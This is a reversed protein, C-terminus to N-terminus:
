GTKVLAAVVREAVAEVDATSAGIVVAGGAAVPVLVAPRGDVQLRERARPSEEPVLFVTVPGAATRVVFHPRERGRFECNQAYVVEGLGARLGLGFQALVATVEAAPLPRTLSLVEREHALHAAMEDALSPAPRLTWLLLGALVAVVISAAAAFRRPLVMRRPPTTARSAMPLALARRLRADLARLEDQHRACAPCAARHAVLEASDAGPEAGVARRFELCNM